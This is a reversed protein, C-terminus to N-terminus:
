PGDRDIVGAKIPEIGVLSAERVIVPCRDVSLCPWFFSGVVLTLERSSGGNDQVVVRYANQSNSVTMSLRIWWLNRMSVIRYGESEAWRRVATPAVYWNFRAHLGIGGLVLLFFAFGFVSSAVSLM